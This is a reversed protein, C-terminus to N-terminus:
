FSWGVVLHGNEAAHTIASAERKMQAILTADTVEVEPDTLKVMAAKFRNYQDETLIVVLEM